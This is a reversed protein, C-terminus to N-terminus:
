PCTTKMDEWEMPDLGDLRHCDIRSSDATARRPLPSTPGGVSAKANIQGAAAAPQNAAVPQKVAPAKEPEATKKDDSPQPGPKTAAAVPKSSSAAATHM